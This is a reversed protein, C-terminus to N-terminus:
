CYIDNKINSKIKVKFGRFITSDLFLLKDLRGMLNAECM